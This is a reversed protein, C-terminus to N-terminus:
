PQPPSAGMSRSRRACISCVSRPPGGVRWRQVTGVARWAAVEIAPDAALTARRASIRAAAERVLRAARPAVPAKLARAAEAILDDVQPSDGELDLLRVAALEAVPDTPATQLAAVFSRTAGLSDTRDEAIEGLGALALARQAPTGSRAALELERLAGSADSATLYRLWGARALRSSDKQAATEAQELRRRADDPSWRPPEGRRAGSACGGALLLVAFVGTRM